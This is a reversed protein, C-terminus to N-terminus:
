KNKILVSMQSLKQIIKIKKPAAFDEPNIWYKGKRYCHVLFLNPEESFIILSGDRSCSMSTCMM